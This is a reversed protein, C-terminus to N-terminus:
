RFNWCASKGYYKESSSYWTAGELYKKKVKAPIKLKWVIKWVPNTASTGPLAM